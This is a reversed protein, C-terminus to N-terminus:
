RDADVSLVLIGYIFVGFTATSASLSFSVIGRMATDPNNNNNHDFFCLFTTFPVFFVIM